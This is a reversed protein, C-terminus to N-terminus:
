LATRRWSEVTVLLMVLANAPHLASLWPLSLDQGLVVLMVQTIYLLVLMLAPQRFLAGAPLLSLAALALIPLSLVGGFLGHMGWDTPGGFLALGALFVQVMIGAIISAAILPAPGYLSKSSASM